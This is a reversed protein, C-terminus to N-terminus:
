SYFFQFLNGILGTGLMSYEEFIYVFKDENREAHIFTTKLYTHDNRKNKNENKEEKKERWKQMETSFM